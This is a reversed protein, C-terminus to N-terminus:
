YSPLIKALIGPDTRGLVIFLIQILINLFIVVYTLPQLSILPIAFVNPVTVIYYLILGLWFMIHTIAFQKLSSVLLGYKKYTSYNYIDSVDQM